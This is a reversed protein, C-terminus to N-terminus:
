RNKVLPIQLYFPLLSQSFNELEAMHLSKQTRPQFFKLQRYNKISLGPYSWNEEQFRFKSWGLVTFSWKVKSAPFYSHNTVENGLSESFNRTRRCISARWIFGLGLLNELDLQFVRKRTDILLCLFRACM